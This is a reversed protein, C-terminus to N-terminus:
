ILDGRLRKLTAEDQALKAFAEQSLSDVDISAAGMKDSDTGLNNLGPPQQGAAKVNAAVAAAKRGGGKTGPEDSKSSREASATLQNARIVMDAAKSLARAPSHGAAQFAAQLEAVEDVLGQNFEAAGERFEPFETTYLEIVGELTDTNAAASSLERVVPQLELRAIRRNLTNIEKFIAKAEVLKGDALLNQYQESKSELLAEAEQVSAPGESLKLREELDKARNEAAEIQRDKKIRLEDFRAKPIFKGEADRPKDDAKAPAKAPEAPKTVLADAEAKDAESLEPKAPEAAPEAAPAAPDTPVADGRAASLAAPDEPLKVDILSEALDAESLAM